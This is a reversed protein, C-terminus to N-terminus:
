LPGGGSGGSGCLFPLGAHLAQVERATRFRRRPDWSLFTASIDTANRHRDVQVVALRTHDGWVNGFRLLPISYRNLLPIDHSLFFLISFVHRSSIEQTPFQMTQTRHQIEISKLLLLQLHPSLDTSLSWDIRM